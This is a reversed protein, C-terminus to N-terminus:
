WCVEFSNMIKFKVNIEKAVFGLKSLNLSKTRVACYVYVFDLHCSGRGYGYVLVVPLNVLPFFGWGRKRFVTPM